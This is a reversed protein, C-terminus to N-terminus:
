IKLYKKAYEKATLSTITKFQRNFHSINNYGTEYCIQTITMNSDVLLKCANLIRVENLFQSFTKHTKSKFYRCFSSKTLGAIEAVKEIEVEAAYNQVIYNMVKNIRQTDKFNVSSSYDSLTSLLEYENSIAFHELTQLFLIMQEVGKSSVTEKILASIKEHDKGKKIKLGRQGNKFLNNIHSFEPMNFFAENLVEKGFHIVYVDVFLDKNGQYFDKDNKWFHPVDPSIFMLDGDGFNSVDNGMFRIGYSKEVFIIEYEPHYHLPYDMFPTVERKTTISSSHFAQIKELKPLM